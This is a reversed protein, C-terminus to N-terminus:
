PLYQYYRGDKFLYPPSPPSTFAYDGEGDSNFQRLCPDNSTYGVSGPGFKDPDYEFEALVFHWPCVGAGGSSDGLIDVPNQLPDFRYPPNISM